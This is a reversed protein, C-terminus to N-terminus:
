VHVGFVAGESADAIRLDRVRDVGVCVGAAIFDKPKRIETGESEIDVCISYKTYRSIFKM